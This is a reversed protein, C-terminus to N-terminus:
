GQAKKAEEILPEMKEEPYYEELVKETEQFSKGFKEMAAEVKKAIEPNGAMIKGMGMMAGQMEEEMKVAEKALARMQAEDPKPQAKLQKALKEMKPIAADMAAGFADADEANKINGMTKFVNMMTNVIELAVANASEFKKEAGAVNGDAAQALPALPSAFLTAIVTILQTRKM